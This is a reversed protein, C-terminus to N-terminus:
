ANNKKKKMVTPNGFVNKATNSIIAELAGQGKPRQVQSNKSNKNKQVSNQNKQINSRPNVNQILSQKTNNNPKKSSNNQPPPAVFGEPKKETHVDQLGSQSKSIATLLLKYNLISQVYFLQVQQKTLAIIRDLDNKNLDKLEYLEGKKEILQNLIYQFNDIYGKYINLIEKYLNKINEHKELNVIFRKPEYCLNRNFIPNNADIEMDLSVKKNKGKGNNNNNNNNNENQANNFKKTRNSEILLDTLYDTIKVNQLKGEDIDMFDCLRKGLAHRNESLSSKFVKIFNTSEQIDLFYKTCFELGELNSFDIKNVNDPKTFDKHPMGCYSFHMNNDKIEINRYIIGAISNDGFTEIDLIYKILRIIYLIKMYHSVISKCAEEKKPQQEPSTNKPIFHVKDNISQIKMTTEDKLKSAWVANYQQCTTFDLLNYKPNVFQNDPTIIGNIIENINKLVEEFVKSEKTNDVFNSSTNGM